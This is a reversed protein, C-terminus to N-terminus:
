RCRDRLRQLRRDRGPAVVGPQAQPSIGGDSSSTNMWRMLPLRPCNRMFPRQKEKAAGAPRHDHLLEDLHAAIPEGERHHHADRQM